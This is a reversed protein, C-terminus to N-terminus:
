NDFNSIHPILMSLDSVMVSNTTASYKRDIDFSSLVCKGIHTMIEQETGNLMGIISFNNPDALSLRSMKILDFNM